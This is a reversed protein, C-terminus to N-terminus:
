TTDDLYMQYYEEQDDSSLDAYFKAPTMHKEESLWVFFSSTYYSDQM